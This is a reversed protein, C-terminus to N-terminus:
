AKGVRPLAFFKRASSDVALWVSIFLGWKLRDIWALSTFFMSGRSHLGVISDLVLYYAIPVAVGAAILIWQSWVRRVFTLGFFLACLLFTGLYILHGPLSCVVFVEAYIFLVYASLLVWYLRTSYVAIPWRTDSKNM